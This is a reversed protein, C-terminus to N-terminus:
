CHEETGYAARTLARPRAPDATCSPTQAAPASGSRACRVTDEGAALAALYGARFAAGADTPDAAETDPIALLLAHDHADTFLHYADDVLERIRTGDLRTLQQDTARGTFLRRSM